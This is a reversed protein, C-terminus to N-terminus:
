KHLSLIGAIVICGIGTLSVIDPYDKFFLASWLVAFGVYGFDFVGITASPGKQYAFAAGISGILIAAALLCMSLWQESNMGSWHALLFGQRSEAALTTTFFTALGGVCIFAVNLALSLLLPHESRCKTRTLIMSLAYLIASLIPLLAYRNFDETSPKLILLVGVFGLAVSIQGSRTIKDGTLLASFVTIFLPLTYYAAAAISLSLHPLSLYYCIWMAVLLMSRLLTWGPATPKQFAHRTTAFIFVLLCPIAIASRLVFIQWLSFDASSNKILADGLSLAFVTFLIVAVALPLNDGSSTSSSQPPM